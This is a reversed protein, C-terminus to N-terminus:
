PINKWGSLPSVEGVGRLILPPIGELGRSDWEHIVWLTLPEGGQERGCLAFFSFFNTQLFSMRSPFWEWPAPFPDSCLPVMWRKSRKIKEGLNKFKKETRKMDRKQNRKKRRIQFENREKWQYIAERQIGKGACVEKKRTVELVNEAEPETWRGWNEQGNHREM